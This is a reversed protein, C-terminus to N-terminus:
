DEEEEDPRDFYRDALALQDPYKALFEEKIKEGDREVTSSPGYWGDDDDEFAYFAPKDEAAPGEVTTM